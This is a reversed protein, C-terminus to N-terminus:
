DCLFVRLKCKLNTLLPYRMVLIAYNRCFVIPKM